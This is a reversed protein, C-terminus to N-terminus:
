ALPAWNSFIMRMETVDRLASKVKPCQENHRNAM